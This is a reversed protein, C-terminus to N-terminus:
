ATKETPIPYSPPHYLGHAVVTQPLGPDLFLVASPLSARVLERHLAPVYIQVPAGEQNTM